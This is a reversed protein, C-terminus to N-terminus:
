GKAPPYFGRHFFLQPFRPTRVFFGRPGDQRVPEASDPGTGQYSLRRSRSLASKIATGKRGCNGSRQVKELLHESGDMIPIIKQMQKVPAQPLKTGAWSRPERAKRRGDSNCCDWFNTGNLCNPIEGSRREIESPQSSDLFSFTERVLRKRQDKNKLIPLYSENKVLVQEGNEEEELLSVAPLRGPLPSLPPNPAELATIKRKRKM